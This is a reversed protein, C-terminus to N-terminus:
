KTSLLIDKSNLTKGNKLLDDLEADSMKGNEARELLKFTIIAQMLEFDSPEKTVVHEQFLYGIKFFIHLIPVKDYTKFLEYATLWSILFILSYITGINLMYFLFGIFNIALIWFISFMSGCMNSIRSMKRCNQLTMEIGEDNAQIVKHEAGHYEYVKTKKRINSIFKPIIFMLVFTLSISVLNMLSKELRWTSMCIDIFFFFVFLMFLIKDSLLLAAIGRIVPIKKIKQLAKSLKEDENKKMHIMTKEPYSKFRIKYKTTSFEIGNSFSKGGVNQIM